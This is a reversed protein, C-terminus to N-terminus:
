RSAPHLDTRAVYQNLDLDIGKQIFLTAGRRLKARHVQEDEEHKNVLERFTHERGPVVFAFQVFGWVICISASVNLTMFFM